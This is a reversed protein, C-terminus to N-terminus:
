QKLYEIFQKAKEANPAGPALQIYAEFAAIAAAKDGGTNLLAMGLMFQSDPHKPDAKAAAEFKEKAEPYKQQNWLIVGQNYLAGAGAGGGAAGDKEAYQAAKNSAELAKEHQGMQTYINALDTWTAANDPRLEASKEYAAAAKDLEKNRLHVIGLNFYCDACTPLIVTTQEFKAIAEAYNGARSAAVGEDFLKQLEAIKKKQDETPAPPALRVELNGPDGISVRTDVSTKLDGKSVTVTYNGPFIGIQVFEGRANTKLQHKRAAETSQILVEAGEVPKGAGDVVRGRIGGTQAAAPAALMACLAASVLAVSARRVTRMM